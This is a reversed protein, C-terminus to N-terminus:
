LNVIKSVIFVKFYTEEQLSSEVKRQYALEASARKYATACLGGTANNKSEMQYIEFCELANRETVCFQLQRVANSM